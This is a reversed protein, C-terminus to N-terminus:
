WLAGDPSLEWARTNPTHRSRTTVFVILAAWPPSGFIVKAIKSSRSLTIAPSDMLRRFYTPADTISHVVGAGVTGIWVGGDRDRLLSLGVIKRAPAPYTHQTELKGGGFRALRGPLPILLTGDGTEGLDPAVATRFPMHYFMPPGPRWRWIGDRAVIWLVDHSDEYLVRVGNPLAGDSGHCDINTGDIVCLKGPSALSYSSVWVTGNRDELISGIVSGALDTYRTLKGDRWSALGEM